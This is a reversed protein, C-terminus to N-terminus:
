SNKRNRNKFNRSCGSALTLEQLYAGLAIEVASLLTTKGTTNDGIVVNMKSNFPFSKNEFGRFNKITIDNIRMVIYKNTTQFLKLQAVEKKVGTSRWLSVRRFTSISSKMM